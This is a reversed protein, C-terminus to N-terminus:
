CLHLYSVMRLTTIKKHLNRASYTKLYYSAIIRNVEEPLLHNPMNQRFYGNVLLNDDSDKVYQLYVGKSRPTLLDAASRSYTGITSIDATADEESPFQDVKILFESQFEQSQVAFMASMTHVIGGNSTKQREFDHAGFTLIFIGHYFM